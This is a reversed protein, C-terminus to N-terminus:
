IYIIDESGHLQIIDIRVQKLVDEIIKIEADLFVGVTKITNNLKLVLRNANEPSIKRKSDAFVLGIYDPNLKNVYEIEESNKIGCIKIEPM